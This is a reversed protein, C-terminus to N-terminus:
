LVEQERPIDTYEYWLENAIPNHYLAYSQNPTPEPTPISEVYMGRARAESTLLDPQYHISYVFNKNPENTPDCFILM